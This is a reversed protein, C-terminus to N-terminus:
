LLRMRAKWSLGEVFVRELPPESSAVGRSDIEWLGRPFPIGRCRCARVRRFDAKTAGLSGVPAERMWLGLLQSVM